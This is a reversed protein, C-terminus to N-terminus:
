VQTNYNYAQDYYANYQNYEYGQYNSQMHEYLM